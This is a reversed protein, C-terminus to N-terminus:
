RDAETEHARLHTYSVASLVAGLPVFREKFIHTPLWVERLALERAQSRQSVLRKFGVHRRASSRPLISRIVM